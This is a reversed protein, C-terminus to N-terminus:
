TQRRRAMFGIVGLGALLLAYTQPEPAPAANIGVVFDDWDDHHAGDNYGILYQFSGRSTQVNTGLLVWTSHGVGSAGNAASQGDSGRFGFDLVSRANIPASTIWDGVSAQEDLMAGNSAITVGDRYLSEQGLYTLTFTSHEDATFQGLQGSTYAGAALVGGDPNFLQTFTVDGSPTFSVQATAATAVLALASPLWAAKKDM